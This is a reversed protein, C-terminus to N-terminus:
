FLQGIIVSCNNGGFAFSNSMFYAPGHQELSAGRCVLHLDPIGKDREGDWAHPPLPYVGNRGQQLALWCFGIEMAGAAGLCHGIAPKSSSCALTGFLRWVAKAEMADNLPTGTGHLNLYHVDAPRLRADHLAHRMAAEAGIGEPHPASMHYADCSEGVGCLQTPGEDRTLIFLAAGEGINLGDRNKSMPKSLTRSLSSLAEFGNLTLHCLADVGGTIIADCFGSALLSQASAFAKASASCATSVTYAPGYLGGLRAIFKAISGMEHQAEYHYYGPLTGTAQWHFFAEESADLGSTSSGIVVGLREPGFKDRLLDIEDAIQRFAVYALVHGRCQFIRLATPLEPLPDLVRGVPVIAGTTRLTHPSLRTTDASFLGASIESLNSGLANVMGLATLSFRQMM